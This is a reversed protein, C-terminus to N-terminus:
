GGLKKEVKALYAKANRQTVLPNGTNVTRKVREHKLARVAEEIGIQAMGFPDQAVTAYM